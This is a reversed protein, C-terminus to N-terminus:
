MSMAPMIGANCIKTNLCISKTFVAANDVFAQSPSPSDLAASIMGGEDEINIKDMRNAWAKHNNPLSGTVSTGNRLRPPHIYGVHDDYYDGSDQTNTGLGLVCKIEDLAHDPSVTITITPNGVDSRVYEAAAHNAWDDFTTPISNPDRLTLTTSAGDRSIAVVSDVSVITTAGDNVTILHQLLNNPAAIGWADVIDGPTGVGTWLNFGFLYTDQLAPPDASNEVQFAVEIDDFDEAESTHQDKSFFLLVGRFSTGDDYYEWYYIDKAMDYPKVDANNAAESLTVGGSNRKVIFTGDKVFQDADYDAEFPLFIRGFALWSHQETWQSPVYSMTHGSDCPTGSNVWFRRDKVAQHTFGKGETFHIVDGNQVKRAVGRNSRTADYNHVEAWDPLAAINGGQKWVTKLDAYLGIQSSCSEQAGDFWLDYSNGAGATIYKIEGTINSLSGEMPNNRRPALILKWYYVTAEGLDKTAQTKGQATFFGSQFTGDAYTEVTADVLLDPFWLELRKAATSIYSNLVYEGFWSSNPLPSQGGNPMMREPVLAAGMMCATKRNDAPDDAPTGTNNTANQPLGPEHIFVDGAPGKNPWTSPTSYDPNVFWGVGTKRELWEYGYQKAQGGAITGRAYWGGTAYATAVLLHLGVPLAPHTVLTHLSPADNRFLYPTPFSLIQVVLWPISGHLQGMITRNVPNTPADQKLWGSCETQICKPRHTSSLSASDQVACTWKADGSLTGWSKSFDPISNGCRDQSCNRASTALSEEWVTLEISTVGTLDVGTLDLISRYDSSGIHRIIMKGPALFAATKDERVGNKIWAAEFWDDEPVRIVAETVTNEEAEFPPLLEVVKRICYLPSDFRMRHWPEATSPPYHRYDAMITDSSDTPWKKTAASGLEGMVTFTFTDGPSMAVGAAPLGGIGIVIVGAHYQLQSPASFSLIGNLPLPSHATEVSYPSEGAGGYDDNPKLTSYQIARPDGGGTWKVTVTSGIASVLEYSIAQSPPVYNIPLADAELVGNSQLHLFQCMARVKEIHKRVTNGASTLESSWMRELASDGIYIDEFAKEHKGSPALNVCTLCRVPPKRTFTGYSLTPLKFGPFETYGTDDAGTLDPFVGTLDTGM